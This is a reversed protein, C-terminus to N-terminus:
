ADCQGARRGCVQPRVTLVRQVILTLKYRDSNLNPPDTGLSPDDWDLTEAAPVAPSEGAFRMGDCDLLFISPEPECAWLLNRMSVDGVV